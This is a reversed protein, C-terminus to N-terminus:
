EALQMELEETKKQILHALEALLGAVSKRDLDCSVYWGNPLEEFKWYRYNGYSTDTTMKLDHKVIFRAAKGLWPEANEKCWDNLAHLPTREAPDAEIAKILAKFDPPWFTETKPLRCLDHLYIQIM